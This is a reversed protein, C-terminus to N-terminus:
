HTGMIDHVQHWNFMPLWDPTVSTAVFDAIESSHARPIAKREVHKARIKRSAVRAHRQKLSALTLPKLYVDENSDSKNTWFWLILFAIVFVAYARVTSGTVQLPQRVALVFQMLVLDKSSLNVLSRIVRHAFEILLFNFGDFPEGSSTNGPCPQTLSECNATGSYAHDNIPLRPSM